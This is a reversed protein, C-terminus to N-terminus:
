KTKKTQKKIKKKLEIGKATLRYKQKPHNPTNPYKMEIVGYEIAPLVYQTRFYDDHKLQLAKQIEVRTMENVLVLVVRIVEVTAEGTLEGTVQGTVEVKRWIITIFFKTL